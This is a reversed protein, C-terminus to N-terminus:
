IKLEGKKHKEVAYEIMKIAVYNLPRDLSLSLDVVYKRLEDYVYITLYKMKTKV